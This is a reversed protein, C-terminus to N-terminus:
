PTLLRLAAALVVVGVVIEFRREDAHRFWRIGIFRGAVVAPVSLAAVAVIANAVLGGALYVLSQAVAAVLFVPILAARLDHRDLSRGLAAVLIPGNVGVIGGSVGAVFGPALARGPDRGTSRGPRGALFWIGVAVVMVGVVIAAARESIFPLAAAGVVTGAVLAGGLPLWRRAIAAGGVTPLLLAGGVVDLLASLVIADRAGVLLGGLSVLVIAPGFGTAAKLTSAALVVVMLLLLTPAPPM